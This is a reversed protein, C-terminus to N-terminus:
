PHTEMWDSVRHLGNGLLELTGEVLDSLVSVLFSALELALYASIGLAFKLRRHKM